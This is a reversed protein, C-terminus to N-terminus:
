VLKTPSHGGFLVPQRTLEPVEFGTRTTWWEAFVRRHCWENPKTVDEFCLLALARAHHRHATVSFMERLRDVGLQELRAIYKAAFADRDFEEMLGWPALAPLNELKGFKWNRPFGVTTRV